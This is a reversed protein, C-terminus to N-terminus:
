KPEKADDAIAGLVVISNGQKFFSVIEGAARRTEANALAKAAASHPGCINAVGKVTEESMPIM